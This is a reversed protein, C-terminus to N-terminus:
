RSGHLVLITKGWKLTRKRQNSATNFQRSEYQSAYGIFLLIDSAASPAYKKNLPSTKITNPSQDTWKSDLRIAVPSNLVPCRNIYGKVNDKAQLSTENKGTTRSAMKSLDPREKDLSEVLEVLVDVDMNNAENESKHLIPWKSGYLVAQTILQSITQDGAVADLLEKFGAIHTLEREGRRYPRNDTSVHNEERKLYKRRQGERYCDSLRSFTQFSVMSADAFSRRSKMSRILRFIPAMIRVQEPLLENEKGYEMESKKQKKQGDKTRCQTFLAGGLVRLALLLKRDLNGPLDCRHDM